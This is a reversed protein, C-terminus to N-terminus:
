KISLIEQISDLAPLAAGKPSGALEIANGFYCQKIV